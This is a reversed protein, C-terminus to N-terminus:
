ARRLKKFDHQRSSSFMKIVETLLDYRPPPNLRGRVLTTSNEHNVTVDWASFSNDALQTLIKVVQSENEKLDAEAQEYQLIEKRLRGMRIGIGKLSSSKSLSTKIKQSKEKLIILDRILQSRVSELYEVVEKILNEHM